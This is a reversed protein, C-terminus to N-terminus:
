SGETLSEMSKLILSIAQKTLGFVEGIEELSEDPHKLRYIYISQNRKKLQSRRM